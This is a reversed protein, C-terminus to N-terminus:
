EEIPGLPEGLVVISQFIQDPSFTIEVRNGEINWIDVYTESLLCLEPDGLMELVENRSRGQLDESRPIIFAAKETATEIPAQQTTETENESPSCSIATTLAVAFAISLAPLKFEKIIKVKRSM